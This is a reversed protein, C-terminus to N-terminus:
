EKMDKEGKGCRSQEDVTYTHMVDPFQKPIKEERQSFLPHPTSTYSVRDKPTLWLNVWHM